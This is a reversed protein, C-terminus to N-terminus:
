TLEDYVSKYKNADPFLRVDLGTTTFFASISGLLQIGGRSQRALDSSADLSWQLGYWTQVDVEMEETNCYEGEFKSWEKIM